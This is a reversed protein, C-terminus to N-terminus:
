QETNGCEIAVNLRWVTNGKRSSLCIKLYLSNHDSVDAGGIRCEKVRHKDSVNMLFYDIRSHVEHAASYHTFDKELPHPKAM